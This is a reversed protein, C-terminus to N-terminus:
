ISRESTLFIIRNWRVKATVHVKSTESNEDSVCTWYARACFLFFGYAHVNASGEAAQVALV